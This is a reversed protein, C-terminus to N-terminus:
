STIKSDKKRKEQELAKIEKVLYRRSRVLPIICQIMLAGPGVIGLIFYMFGLNVKSVSISEDSNMLLGSIEQTPIAGSSVIAVTAFLVFKAAMYLMAIHGTIRRRLVINFLNIKLGIEAM